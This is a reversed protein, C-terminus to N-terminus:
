IKKHKTLKKFVFKYWTYIYLIVTYPFVIVVRWNYNMAQEFKLHLISLFARTMGCNFCEKGTINKYLCLSNMSEIPLNYLFLLLLINIILCIFIRSYIKKNNTTQFLM